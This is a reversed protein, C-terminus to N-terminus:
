RGLLRGLSALRPDSDVVPCECSERNRNIGCRPCLGKCDERCLRKMPIALVFQERVMEGLDITRDRYYGVVMDRESLEVEDEEDQGERHPLLFLELKQDIAQRFPDLCRGCVLGLRAQLRGSVAVTEEDRLEVHARFTGGPELTFEDSEQAHVDAPELAKDLDLGDPPVEKLNIELV